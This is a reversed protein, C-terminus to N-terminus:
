LHLEVAGGIYEYHLDKDDQLVTTVYLYRSSQWTRYEHYAYVYREPFCEKIFKELHQDIWAM